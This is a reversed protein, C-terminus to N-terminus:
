PEPSSLQNSVTSQSTGQVAALVVQKQGQEALAKVAEKPDAGSKVVHISVLLPTEVVIAGPGAVTTTGTSSDHEAYPGGGEFEIKKIGRAEMEVRLQQAQSALTGFDQSDNPQAPLDSM